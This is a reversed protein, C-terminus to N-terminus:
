TAVRLDCVSALQTGAGLAPGDIAGVVPIPLETFRTLVAQLTAGFVENDVGNLDAGACFAPPAGTLVVARAPDDRLVARDLAALIAQLSEADVANRRDPRDLTIVMVSPSDWSVRIM